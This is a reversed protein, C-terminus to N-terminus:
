LPSIATSSTSYASFVSQVWAVVNCGVVVVVSAVYGILARSQLKSLMVVQLQILSVVPSKWHDRLWAPVEEHPVPGLTSWM